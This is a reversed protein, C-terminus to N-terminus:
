LKVAHQQYAPDWLLSCSLDFKKDCQAASLLIVHISAQLFTIGGLHAKHYITIKSGLAGLIMKQYFFFLANSTMTGGETGCDVSKFDERCNMEKQKKKEQKLIKDLM